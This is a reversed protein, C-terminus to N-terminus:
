KWEFSDHHKTLTVEANQLVPWQIIYIYHGSPHWSSFELSGEAEWTGKCPFGLNWQPSSAKETTFRKATADVTRWSNMKIKGLSNDKIRFIFYISLLIFLFQLPQFVLSQELDYSRGGFNFHVGIYVLPACDKYWSTSRMGKLIHICKGFM